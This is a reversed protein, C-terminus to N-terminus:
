FFFTISCAAYTYRMVLFCSLGIVDALIQWFLAVKQSRRGQFLAPHRDIIRLSPRTVPQPQAVRWMVGLKRFPSKCFRQKMTAM